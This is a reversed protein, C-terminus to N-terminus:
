AQQNDTAKLEFYDKQWLSMNTPHCIRIWQLRLDLLYDRRFKDMLFFDNHLYNELTRLIFANKNTQLNHLNTM